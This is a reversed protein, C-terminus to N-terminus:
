DNEFDFEGNIAAKRNIHRARDDSLLLAVNEFHDSFMRLESLPRGLRQELEKKRSIVTGRSCACKKEIEAVSLGEKCYLNLVTTHTPAQLRPGGDLEHAVALIGAIQEQTLLETEAHLAFFQKLSDDYTPYVTFDEGLFDNLPVYLLKNRSAFDFTEPCYYPSLLMLGAGEQGILQRALSLPTREPHALLFAHHRRRDPGRIAGLRYIGDGVANFNREVSFCDCLKASFVCPCLQFLQIDAPDIQRREAEPNNEYDPSLATVTDGERLIDFRRASDPSCWYSAQVGADKLFPEIRSFTNGFYFRWENLTYSAGLHGNLMKFYHENANDACGGQLLGAARLWEEVRPADSERAFSSKNPPFLEVSRYKQEGDFRFLLKAYDVLLAGAPIIRGEKDATQLLDTSKIHIITTVAGRISFRAESLKVDRIGSVKTTRLYSHDTGSLLNLPFSERPVFTHGSGFFIQGFEYRMRELAAETTNRIKLERHRTNYILVDYEEDRFCVTAVEGTEDNVDGHRELYGGHRILLWLEDGEAVDIVTVAGGKSVGSYFSSMVGAFRQITDSTYQLTPAKDELFSAFYHFSRANHMQLRFGAREAVMPHHLWVWLALDYPSSLESPIRVSLDKAVEFIAGRGKNMALRSVLHIADYLEMLNQDAQLFLKAIQDYPMNESSPFAPLTIERTLLADAAPRLFEALLVPAFRRFVQPNAFRSLNSM